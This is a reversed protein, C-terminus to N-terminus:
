TYFKPWLETFHKVPTLESLVHSNWLFINNLWVFYFKRNKKLQNKQVNKKLPLDISICAHIFMTFILFIFLHGMAYMCGGISDSSREEDFSQM